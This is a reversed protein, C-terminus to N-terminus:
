GERPRVPAESAVLARMDTVLADAGVATLLGAKRPVAAYGIARVGVAHAAVVDAPSDGVLVAAAPDRSGLARSVLYPDPKLLAPHAPDRGEVHAVLGDLARRVLYVGIADASNNSVIVVTRGAARCDRLFEAAGRTPEATGAARVEAARLCSEMVAGLDGSVACAWRLVRMPDDEGAPPDEGARRALATLEAAVGPAPLRAFISCVPGDFDLLVTRAGRLLAAAGAATV